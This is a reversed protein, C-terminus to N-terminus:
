ARRDPEVIVRADLEDIHQLARQAHMNSPFLVAETGAVRYIEIRAHRVAVLAVAAARAACDDHRASTRSRHKNTAADRMMIAGFQSAYHRQNRSGPRRRGKLMRQPGPAVQRRDWAAPVVGVATERRSMKASPGRGAENCPMQGSGVSARRTSM